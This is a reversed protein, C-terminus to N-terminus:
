IPTFSRCSGWTSTLSCCTRNERCNDKLWAFLFNKLTRYSAFTNESIRAKGVNYAEQFLTHENGMTAANKYNLFFTVAERVTFTKLNFRQAPEEPKKGITFGEEIVKRIEEMKQRSVQRRASVSTYKNMGWYRKKAFAEQDTDWIYYEIYWRKTLDGAYDNLRPLHKPEYAPIM